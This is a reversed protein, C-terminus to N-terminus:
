EFYPRVHDRKKRKESFSLGLLCLPDPVPIMYSHFIPVIRLFILHEFGNNWPSNKIEVRAM